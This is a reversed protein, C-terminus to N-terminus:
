PGWWTTGARCRTVREACRAKPALPASCSKDRALRSKGLASGLQPMGDGILSLLSELNRDLFCIELQSQGVEHAAQRIERAAAHSWSEYAADAIMGRSELKPLRGHIKDTDLVAVVNAVADWLPGRQLERLVNANGGCPKGDIVGSSMLKYRDVRLRSAVCAVLFVHPGFGAIPGIAKDEWLVFTTM